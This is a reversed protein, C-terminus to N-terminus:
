KYFINDILTASNKSYRTPRTILPKYFHAFMMNLFQGTDPHSENNLLNINYDGAIYCKNNKQDIKNLLTELKTIFPKLDKNPPRYLAGILVSAKDTVNV